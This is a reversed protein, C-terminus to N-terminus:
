RGSQRVVHLPELSANELDARDNVHM